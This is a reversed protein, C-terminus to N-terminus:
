RHDCVVAEGDNSPNRRVGDVVVAVNKNAAVVEFDIM